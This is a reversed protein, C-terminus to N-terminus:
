NDSAQNPDSSRYAQEQGTSQEDYSLKDPQNEKSAM